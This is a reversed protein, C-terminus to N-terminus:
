IVNSNSVIMLEILISKLLGPGILKQRPICSLKSPNAYNMNRSVAHPFRINRKM